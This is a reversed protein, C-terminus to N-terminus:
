WLIEGKHQLFVTISSLNGENPLQMRYLPMLFSPPKVSSSKRKWSVPVTAREGLVADSDMDQALSRDTHCRPWQGMCHDSLKEVFEVTKRFSDLAIRQDSVTSDAACALVYLNTEKKEVKKDVMKRDTRRRVTKQVTRRAKEPVM